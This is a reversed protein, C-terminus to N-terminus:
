PCLCVDFVWWLREAIPSSFAVSRPPFEAKLIWMGGKKIKISGNLLLLAFVCVCVCM